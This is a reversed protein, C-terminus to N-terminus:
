IKSVILPLNTPSHLKEIPIPTSPHVKGKWCLLSAVNEKQQAKENENEDL